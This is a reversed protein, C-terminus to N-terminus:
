GHRLDGIWGGLAWLMLLAGVASFALSSIVGFLLLTIGAGMVMPWYSPRPLHVGAPLERAHREAGRRGGPAGEEGDMPRALRRLAIRGLALLLVGGLLQLPGPFRRPLWM